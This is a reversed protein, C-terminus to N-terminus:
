LLARLAGDLEVALRDFSRERAVWARGAAARAPRDSAAALRLAAAAFAQPERAVIEGAGTAKIAHRHEPNATAVVPLGLALYELVKIPSDADFVGGTPLPALGADAAALLQAVREHPVAGTLHARSRVGAAALERELFARDEARPGDGIVLLSARPERATAARLIPALVELGRARHLTGAYALVPGEGIGLERRVAARDDRRETWARPVGEPMVHIATGRPRRISGAMTESIPILLAARRLAMQRLALGGLARTANSVRGGYLGRPVHVRLVEEEKLHSLQFALPVRGTRAVAAFLLALWPDDRVVVADFRGQAVLARPEALSGARARMVRGLAPGALGTAAPIRWLRGQPSWGGPEREAAEAALVWSVEWGLLSLERGFIERLSAFPPPERETTVLLLSRRRASM